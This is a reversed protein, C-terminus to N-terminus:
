FVGKWQVFQLARNFVHDYVGHEVVKRSFWATGKEVVM